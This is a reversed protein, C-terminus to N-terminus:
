WVLFNLVVHLSQSEYSTHGWFYFPKQHWIVLHIVAALIVPEIKPQRFNFELSETEFHEPLVHVYRCCWFKTSESNLALIWVHISNLLKPKYWNTTNPDNYDKYRDSIFKFSSVMPQKIDYSIWFLGMPFKVSHDRLLCQEM